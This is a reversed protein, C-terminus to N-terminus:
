RSSRGERADLIHALRDRRERVIRELGTPLDGGCLLADVADLAQRRVVARPFLEAAVVRAIEWPLRGAVAPLQQAYRLAYPALLDDQGPRHFGRAVLQITAVPMGGAVIQQWAAEKADRSPAAAAISAARAPDCGVTEPASGLAALALLMAHRTSPSSEGPLLERLAVADRTLAV